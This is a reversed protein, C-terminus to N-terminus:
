FTLPCWPAGALPGLATTARSLAGPSMERVAGRSRLPTGGFYAAGLDAVPLALDPEAATPECSAGDLGGVLRWSGTNWPCRPDDVALVLDVETAYRRGALAAPVDVLRVHLCDQLSARAVRPEALLDLLLPDDVAVEAAVEATLDLDLLYRWLQAHATRTEAVVERV